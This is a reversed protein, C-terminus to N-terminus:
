EICGHSVANIHCLAAALADTVDSTVSNESCNLTTFIMRAVQDKSARGMGTLSKK